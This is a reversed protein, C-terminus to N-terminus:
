NTKNRQQGKQACEHLSNIASDFSNISNGQIKQIKEDNKKMEDTNKKAIEVIKENKQELDEIKQKNEKNKLRQNSFLLYFVTSFFAGIVGFILLIKNKLQM